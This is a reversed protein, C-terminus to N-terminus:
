ARWVIAEILARGEDGGERFLPLRLVSPAGPLCPGRRPKFAGPANFSVPEDRATLVAVIPSFPM